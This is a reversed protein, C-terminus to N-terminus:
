ASRLKNLTDFFGQNSYAGPASSVPGSGSHTALFSDLVSPQGLPAAQPVTAGPTTVKGPNSLADLYAQRMDYPNKPAAAPAAQQPQASPGPTREWSTGIVGRGLNTQGYPMGDPMTAHNIGAPEVYRQNAYDARAQPSMMGGWESMGFAQNGSPNLASPGSLDSPQLGYKNSNLTTGQPQAPNAADWADHKAQTDLFSQIPNGLADTPTGYFGPMPLAGKYQTYPNPKMMNAMGMMTFPNTQDDAM